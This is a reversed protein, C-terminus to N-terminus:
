QAASAANHAGEATLVAAAPGLQSAGNTGGALTAGTLLAQVQQQLAAVTGELQLRQEREEAVATSLQEAQTMQMPLCQLHCAGAVEAECLTM